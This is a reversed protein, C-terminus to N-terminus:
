SSDTSSRLCSNEFQHTVRRLATIHWQTQTQRHWFLKMAAHFVLISSIGCSRGDKLHMLPRLQQRIRRTTGLEKAFWPGKM